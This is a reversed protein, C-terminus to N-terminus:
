SPKGKKGILQLFWPRNAIRAPRASHSELDKVALEVIALGLLRPDIINQHDDMVPEAHSLSLAMEIPRDLEDEKLPITVVQTDALIDFTGADRQGVSIKVSQCAGTLRARRASLKLEAVPKTARGDVKFAIEGRVGAIWTLNSEPLHFGQVLARAGQGNEICPYITGLKLTPLNYRRDQLVGMSRLLISLHRPDVVVGKEDFVAEAHDPVLEVLFNSNGRRMNNPIRFRYQRMEESVEFYAIAMKNILVTCHQRRSTEQSRRGLMELVIECDEPSKAVTGGLSFAIRGPGSTIWTGGEEPDSFGDQLFGTGSGGLRTAFIADTEILKSGLDAHNKALWRVPTGPNYAYVFEPLKNEKALRGLWRGDQMFHDRIYQQQLAASELPEATTHWLTDDHIHTAYGTQAIPGDLLASLLFFRFEEGDMLPMLSTFNAKLLNAHFVFRGRRDAGDVLLVSQSDTFRASELVRIPECKLNHSAHLTGSASLVAGPCDAIARVASAFHESFLRDSAGLFAFYPTNVTKLIDGIIPGVRGITPRIGDFVAPETSLNRPHLHVSRLSGKPTTPLDKAATTPCIIHLDITTRVQRQLDDIQKRLGEKGAASADLVVTVCADTLFEHSFKAKREDNRAFIGELSSELSCLDRLIEQGRLVRRTAEQPDARIERMTALIQQGLMAEGREDDVLYVCDSFYKEILPNPTAIVAAGSAFGEFLRNSMIGTSKHAESSLALCIGSAHIATQVSRGDFPLEGQYTQFGGWPAVGHIEEPGYIEILKKQDLMVLVDHFRGKPRGIREWNIGVYFLKSDAAVSPPMFPQPLNHFLTELPEIPARRLGSFINLAHADALDSHCSLVDNHTSLKDISVQYGFDHYFKIPQWLAYYTYIDCVRPSEFHLSIAFDFLDVPADAGPMIDLGPTSWFVQGGNDIIAVESGINRAARLIRQLVEYEANRLDPWTHYIAFAKTM